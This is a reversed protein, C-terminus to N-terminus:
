DSILSILFRTNASMLALRLALFPLRGLSSSGLCGALFGRSSFKSLFLSLVDSLIVLLSAAATNFSTM